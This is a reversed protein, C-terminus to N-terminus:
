FHQRSPSAGRSIGMDAADSGGDRALWAFLGTKSKWNTGATADVGAHWVSRSSRICLDGASFFMQRWTPFNGREVPYYLKVAGAHGDIYAITASSDNKNAGRLHRTEFGDEDTWAGDTINQQTYISQYPFLPVGDM